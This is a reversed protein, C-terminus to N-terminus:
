RWNASVMANEVTMEANLESVSEGASLAMRSRGWPALGSRGVRTSFRPRPQTNRGNLRNKWRAEVAYLPATDRTSPRFAAARATYAASTSAVTMIKWRTGDPNM